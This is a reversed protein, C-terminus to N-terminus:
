NDFGLADLYRRSAEVIRYPQWSEPPPAQGSDLTQRLADALADVNDVPVLAGYQGGRLIEDPGSPCDTSVVRAGCALAEILVTPLGEFRSSLAFVAAKSMYAFPNAVFGPLAVDDVLGLRKVQEEIEPRLDGEGLIMLRAERKARLKAFADVLLAHNKQPHLRGVTLIVPPEGEALWPHDVPETSMTLTKESIVPNYLVKVREAPMNLMQALDTCVGTSVGALVDASPFFARVFYPMVKLKLSKGNKSEVSLSNHSVALVRTDVGSLKKALIASVNAQSLASVLGAPKASKLYRVLAPLCVAVDRSKLDVLNVAPPVDKLYSGRAVAVVLDVQCGIEALGIALNLMVREAGGGRLDPVLLALRSSATMTLTQMSHDNGVDSSLIFGAPM